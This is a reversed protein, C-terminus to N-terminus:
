SNRDVQQGTFYFSPVENVEHGHTRASRRSIEHVAGKKGAM